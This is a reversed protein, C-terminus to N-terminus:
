TGESLGQAGGGESQNEAAEAQGKQGGQGGAKSARRRAALKSRENRGPGIGHEEEYKYGLEILERIRSGGKKGATVHQDHTGGRTKKSRSAPQEGANQQGENKQGAGENATRGETPAATERGAHAIHRAPVGRREAETAAERDFEHATGREHSGRGGERAHDHHREEDMDTFGQQGREAM